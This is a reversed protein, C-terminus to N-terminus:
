VEVTKFFRVGGHNVFDLGVVAQCGHREPACQGRAHQEAAGIVVLGGGADAIADGGATDGHDGAFGADAFGHGGPGGDVAGFGGAVVQDVDGVGGDVGAADVVVNHGREACLGAEVVGGQDGLGAVCEGGFCGFAAPDGDHADVFSV